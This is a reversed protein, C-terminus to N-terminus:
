RKESLGSLRKGISSYWCHYGERSLRQDLSKKSSRIIHDSYLSLRVRSELQTKLHVSLIAALCHMQMECAFSSQKILLM